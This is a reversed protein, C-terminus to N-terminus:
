KKVLRFEYEPDIYKENIIYCITQASHNSFLIHWAQHQIRPLWSHNAKNHRAGGISTPKRHHLTLEHDFRRQEPTKKKAM